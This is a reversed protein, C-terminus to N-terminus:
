SYNMLMEKVTQTPVQSFDSYFQGIAHFLSPQLPCIVEDAVERLMEVARPSGVPIAVIVKDAGLNRTVTVAMRITSGTAVGDDILIATKGSLDVPLQDGKLEKYTNKAEVQKKKKQEEIYRETVGFINDPNIYTSNVSAAGIAFEPNHPHGIKKIVIVDIPLNLIKGVTYAVPVGGRPIALLITNEEKYKKLHEALKEGAEKRDKYM